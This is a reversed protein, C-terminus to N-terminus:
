ARRRSRRRAVLGALGLGMLALTTPEPVQQLGVPAAIGLVPLGGGINGALTVGDPGATYLQSLQIGAPLVAFYPTGTLGSIDYSTQGMADFPLALSFQLLGGNPNSHIVLADPIRAADAGRLTTTTAGGFNNSYAVAADVPNLGFLPDGPQYALPVDLQVLGNDVNIRLNQDTDSTVRLRDVTPNFDVGFVSGSVSTFPFPATTDAPDAALTSVLTAGGTLPDLTYIHGAGTTFNVGFGYLVGNNPGLSPRRDIGTLFDGALLGTVAIPASVIGPTASDFMILANQITLAVIPEATAPAVWGLGFLAVLGTQVFRGVNRVM